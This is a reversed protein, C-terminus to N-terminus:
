VERSQLLGMQLVDSFPLFDPFQKLIPGFKETIGVSCSFPFISAISPFNEFVSLSNRIYSEKGNKKRRWM